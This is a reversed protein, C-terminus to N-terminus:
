LPGQSSSRRLKPWCALVPSGRLVRVLALADTGTAAALTDISQHGDKVLDAIGIEAAVRLLQTQAVGLMMVLLCHLPPIRPCPHPAILSTM